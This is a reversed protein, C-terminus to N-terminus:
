NMGVLLINEIEFICFQRWAGGMFSFVFVFWVKEDFQVSIQRIKGEVLFMTDWFGWCIMSIVWRSLCKVSSLNGIAMWKSELGGM